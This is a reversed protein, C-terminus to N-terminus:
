NTIEKRKATFTVKGLGLFERYENLLKNIQAYEEDSYLPRMQFEVGALDHDVAYSLQGYALDKPEIKKKSASARALDSVFRNFGDKNVSPEVPSYQEAM